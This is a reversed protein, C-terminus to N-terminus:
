DPRIRSNRVLLPTTAERGAAACRPAPRFGTVPKFLLRLIAAGCRQGSIGNRAPRTKAVSMCDPSRDSGGSLVLSGAFLRFYRFTDSRSGEPLDGILLQICRLFSDTM